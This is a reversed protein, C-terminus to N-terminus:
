AVPVLLIKGRHSANEMMDHAASAEEFPFV